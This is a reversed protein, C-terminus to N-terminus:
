KFSCGAWESVDYADDYSRPGFDICHNHNLDLRLHKGPKKPHPYIYVDLHGGDGGDTFEWRIPAHFAWLGEQQWHYVKRGKGDYLDAYVSWKAKQKNNPGVKLVHRVGAASAPASLGCLMVAGAVAVALSAGARKMKFVM